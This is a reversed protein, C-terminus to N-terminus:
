QRDPLLIQEDQKTSVLLWLYILNTNFKKKIEKVKNCL